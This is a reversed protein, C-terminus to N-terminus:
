SNVILGYVAEDFWKEGLKSFQRLCGEQQMGLKKMINFSASNEAVCYAMVKHPKIEKKIFNLLAQASETAYGKGYHELGLRWGIETTDNEISEYRFCVMGIYEGTNELTIAFLVWDGESGTWDQAIQLTIKRTEEITQPDKIYRMIEPNMAHEVNFEVDKEVFKKLKLRETNLNLHNILEIVKQTAQLKKNPM